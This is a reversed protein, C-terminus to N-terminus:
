EEDPTDARFANLVKDWKDYVDVSAKEEAIQEPTPQTEPDGFYACARPSVNGRRDFVLVTMLSIDEDWEEALDM